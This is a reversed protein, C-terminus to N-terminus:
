PPISKMISAPLSASPSVIKKKTQPSSNLTDQVFGDESYGDDDDQQDSDIEDEITITKENAAPSQKVAAAAPVKEDSYGTEPPQVSHDTNQVVTTKTQEEMQKILQMHDQYNNDSMKALDKNM